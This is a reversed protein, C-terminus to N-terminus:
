EFREVHVHAARILAEAQDLHARMAQRTGEPSQAKVQDLIRCHHIRAGEITSQADYRYTTMRFEFSLDAIPALLVSYLENHTAVALAAHFALDHRIFQEGDDVNAESAAIAAEMAAIDKETARQAALGAIAVELTCRVELLNSYREPMQRMSLLLGLPASVDDLNLEQVYTGSGPRVEILGRVKLVRMAERIVSRSVGMREALEREGPLRDDPRLAEQVIMDQIRDAVQEYLLDRKPSFDFADGM